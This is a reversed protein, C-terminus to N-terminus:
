SFILQFDVSFAPQNLQPQNLSQNL